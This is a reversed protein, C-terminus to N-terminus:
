RKEDSQKFKIPIDFFYNNSQEGVQSLHAKKDWVWQRLVLVSVYIPVVKTHTCTAFGCFPKYISPPIPRGRIAFLTFGSGRLYVVMGVILLAFTGWTTHFAGIVTCCSFLTKCSSGFGSLDKKSYISSKSIFISMITPKNYPNGWKSSPM